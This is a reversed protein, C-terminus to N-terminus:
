RPSRWNRGTCTLLEMARKPGWSGAPYLDPSYDPESWSKLIPDVFRWAAELEDSRTFLTSDGRLVDLLLREYAEPIPVTFEERYNFEMDVPQVQYQMGPRKASIELSISEQPQIRFILTNPRTEVIECMTGECEVTSFLNLPPKRFQVAIETVRSKLRKGTRLYFPVGAWRWNDISAEVAVFTETRSDPAIREEDLYARM